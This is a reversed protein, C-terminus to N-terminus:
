GYCRIEDTCGKEKSQGEGFRGGKSLYQQHYEEAPRLGSPAARARRPHLPACARRSSGRQGIRGGHRGGQRRTM